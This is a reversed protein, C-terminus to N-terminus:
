VRRVCFYNWYKGGYDGDIISYTFYKDLFDTVDQPNLGMKEIYEPYFEMVMKLQPNNQITKELGKLAKPESGDVDMKIFDVKPPLISDLAIGKMTMKSGINVRLKNSDTTQVGDRQAFNDEDKDWAAVNHLSVTDKYGNIEVNKKLYEIQNTTPEISYVKGTKGVQRAMTLTMYGISAGVDVCVDGEKVHEQILKTTHPEYEGHLAFDNMIERMSLDMEDLDVFFRHGKHVQWFKNNPLAEYEKLVSRAFNIAADDNTRIENAKEPPIGVKLKLTPIDSHTIQIGITM